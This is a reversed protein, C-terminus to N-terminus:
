PRGALACTRTVSVGIYFLPGFRRLSTPQDPPRRQNPCHRGCGVQGARFAREGGARTSTFHRCSPRRSRVGTSAFRTSRLTSCPHAKGIYAQDLTGLVAPTTMPTTTGVLVGGVCLTGAGGGLVVAVHKWTGAALEPAGVLPSSGYGDITITFGLNNNLQWSTLSGVKIWTAITIEAAGSFAAVPTSVYGGRSQRLTLANGVKGGGFTTGGSGSSVRTGDRGNGSLDPLSAGSAQECPSCHARGATPIADASADAVQPSAEAAPADPAIGGAGGDGANASKQWPATLDVCGFSLWSATSLALLLRTGPSTDTLLADGKWDQL